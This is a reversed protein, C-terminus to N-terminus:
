FIFESSFVWCLLCPTLSSFESCKMEQVKSGFYM